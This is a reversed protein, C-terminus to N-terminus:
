FRFSCGCRGEDGSESSQRRYREVRNWVRRVRYICLRHCVPLFLLLSLRVQHLVRVLFGSWAPAYEDAPLKGIDWSRCPRKRVDGRPTTRAVHRCSESISQGWLLGRFRGYTGPVDHVSDARSFPVSRVVPPFAEELSPRKRALGLPQSPLFLFKNSFCSCLHM